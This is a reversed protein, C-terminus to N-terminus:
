PFYPLYLVNCETMEATTKEERGIKKGEVKKM